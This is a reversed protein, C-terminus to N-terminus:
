FSKMLGKLEDDSKGNLEEEKFLKIQMMAVAKGDKAFVLDYYGAAVEEPHLYYEGWSGNVEEPKNLDWAAVTGDGNHTKDVYVNADDAHKYVMVKLGSSEDTDLYFGLYENQEFICRLGSVGPAKSNFDESGARNGSVFVGKIVPGNDGANVIELKGPLLVLADASPAKTTEGSGNNNNETAQAKTTGQSSAGGAQGKKGCASLSFIMAGALVLAVIKKM